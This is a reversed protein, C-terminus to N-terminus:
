DNSDNGNVYDEAVHGGIAGAIAGGGALCIAAPAALIATAVVAATGVVGGVWAGFKGRFNVDESPKQEEPCPPTCNVRKPAYQYVKSQHYVSIQSVRM